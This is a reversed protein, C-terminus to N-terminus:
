PMPECESILKAGDRLCMIDYQNCYLNHQVPSLTKRYNGPEPPLIWSPQYHILPSMVSAMQVTKFFINVLNYLPLSFLM